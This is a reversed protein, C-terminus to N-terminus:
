NTKLDHRALSKDAGRYIGSTIQPFAFNLLVLPDYLKDREIQV